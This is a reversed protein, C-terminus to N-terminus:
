AHHAGKLKGRNKRLLSALQMASLAVAITALPWANFGSQASYFGLIALTASVLVVFVTERM